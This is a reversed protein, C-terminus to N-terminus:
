QQGASSAPTLVFSKEGPKLYGKLRAENEIGDPRSLYACQQALRANDQSLEDLNKTRNVIVRQQQAGLVYPRAIGTILIWCVFMTGCLLVGIGVFRLVLSPIFSKRKKVRSNVRQESKTKMKGSNRNNAM